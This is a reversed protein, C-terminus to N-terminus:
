RADIPYDRGGVVLVFRGDTGVKVSQTLAYYVPRLLRAEYEGAQVRCYLANDPGSRLTAPDLPERTGDNLILTFGRERDGEIQRV